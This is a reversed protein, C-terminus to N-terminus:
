KEPISPPASQNTSNGDINNDAYSLVSGGTFTEWGNTDGTVASQSVRLTAGTGEAAIGVDNNNASASRVVMLGAAVAFFGHGNNGAAVSDTVTAKVTGSTSSGSVNIGALGNGDAEVRNFVATLNASGNPAVLIGNGGNSVILTDLVTLNSSASSEYGIADISNNTFLSGRVSVM